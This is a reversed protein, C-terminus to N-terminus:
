GNKIGENGPIVEDDDDDFPIQAAQEFKEKNRSSFAWLFIIIFLVFVVITWASLIISM